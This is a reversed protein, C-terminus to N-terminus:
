RTHNNTHIWNWM